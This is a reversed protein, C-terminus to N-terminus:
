MDDDDEEDEEDEEDEKDAAYEDGGDDEDDEDSDYPKFNKGVFKGEVDYSLVHMIPVTTEDEVSRGDMIKFAIGETRYFDTSKYSGICKKEQLYQVTREPLRMLVFGPINGGNCEERFSNGGDDGKPFKQKRTKKHSACAKKLFFEIAGRLTTAFLSFFRERTKRKRSELETGGGKTFPAMIGWSIKQLEEWKEDTTEQSVEFETTRMKQLRSPTTVHFAGNEERGVLQPFDELIRWLISNVSNNREELNKAPVRDWSKMERLATTGNSEVVPRFYKM